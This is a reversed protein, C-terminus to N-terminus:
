PTSFAYTCPMVELEVLSRILSGSSTVFDVKELWNIEMIAPMFDAKM